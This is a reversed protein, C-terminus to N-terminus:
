NSYITINCYKYYKEDGVAFCIFPHIETKDAILSVVNMATVGAELHIKTCCTEKDNPCHQQM